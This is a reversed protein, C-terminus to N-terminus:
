CQKQQRKQRQQQEAQCLSLSFVLIPKCVWWWLFEVHAGYAESCYESIVVLLTVVVVNGVFIVVVDVVTVGVINVVVM